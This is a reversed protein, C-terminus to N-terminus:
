RLRRGSGGGAAALVAPQEVAGLPEAGIYVGLRDGGEGAGLAGVGAQAAEGEEEDGGGAGVAGGVADADLPDLVLQARAGDGVWGFAAVDSCGPRLRMILMAFPERRPTAVIPRPM